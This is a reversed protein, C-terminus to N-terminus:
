KKEEQKLKKKAEIAEKDAKSHYVYAEILFSKRGFKGKVAKIATDDEPKKSHESVIKAAESFSPNSEQFVILKLEERKLLPNKKNSLVEVKM